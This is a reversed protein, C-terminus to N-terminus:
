IRTGYARITTGTMAEGANGALVVCLNALDHVSIGEEDQMGDFLIMSPAIAHTTVSNDPYESAISEVLRIVGAKAASYPAQEGAGRDAGQGSAFAVLRMQGGRRQKEALRLAERFTLFTTTLNVDMVTKWRDFSLGRTPQGDWMGVTHVFVDLGGHESLIRAFVDEVSAEDTLDAAYCPDVGAKEANSDIGIVRHGLSVFKAAVVRGLRGAAGSVVVNSM